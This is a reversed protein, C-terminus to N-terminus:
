FAIKLTTSFMGMPGNKNGLDAEGTTDGVFDNSAYAFSLTTNPFIKAIDLGAKFYADTKAIDTTQSADNYYYFGAKPTVTMPDMKVDYKMSTSFGMAYKDAMLNAAEFNAVATLNEILSGAFFSVNMGLVGKNGDGYIDASKYVVGASVGPFYGWDTDKEASFYLDPTKAKDGWGLLVGGQVVYGLKESAAVVTTSASSAAVAADVMKGNDLDWFLATGPIAVTGKKAATTTISPGNDMLVDVAVLPKVYMKDDLKVKYAVKGGFGMDYKAYDGDGGFGTSVGAQLTLNEVATVDAKARLAFRNKTAKPLAATGDDKWENISRFDVDVGVVKPVSFGFVIGYPADAGVKEEGDSLITVFKDDVKLLKGYKKANDVKYFAAGTEPLLAYNILTGDKKIGIYANEGLHLKAVDVVVKYGDALNHDKADEHTAKMIAADGDTKIKLEGWIGEGATSKDGSGLLSAKLAVDTANSFAVSGNELDAGLTVSASGTFETVKFEAKPEDAFVAGVTSLALLIVLAKKM